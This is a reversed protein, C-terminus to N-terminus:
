GLPVLIASRVCQPLFGCLLKGGDYEFLRVSHPRARRRRGAPRRAAPATAVAADRLVVPSVCGPMVPSRSTTLM